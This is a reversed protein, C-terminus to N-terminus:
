LLVLILCSSALFVSSRTIVAREERFVIPADKGPKKFMIHVLDLIQIGEILQPASKM